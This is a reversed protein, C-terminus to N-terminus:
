GEWSTGWCFPCTCVGSSIGMHTERVQSTKWLMDGPGSHLGLAKTQVAGKSIPHRVMFEPGETPWQDGSLGDYALGFSPGFNAQTFTHLLTKPVQTWWGALRM